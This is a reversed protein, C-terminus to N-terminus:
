FAVIVEGASVAPPAISLGPLNEAIWAAAAANSEEAGARDDCVTISAGGGDATAVFYYAQFGAIASIRSRVSEQNRRLEDGLENRGAYVRITAYM